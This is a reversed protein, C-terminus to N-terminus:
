WGHRSGVLGRDVGSRRLEAARRRPAVILEPKRFLRNETLGRGGSRGCRAHSPPARQGAPGPLGCGVAAATAARLAETRTKGAALLREAYTAGSVIGPRGPHGCYHATGLQRHPQRRRQAASSRRAPQVAQDAGRGCRRPPRVGAQGAQEARGPARRCTRERLAAQTVALADIPDSKGPQRGSRRATAMLDSLAAGGFRPLGLHGRVWAVEGACSVPM